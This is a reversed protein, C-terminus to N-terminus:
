VPRDGCLDGAGTEGAGGSGLDSADTGNASVKIIVRPHEL